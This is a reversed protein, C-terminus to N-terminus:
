RSGHQGWVLSAVTDELKLFSHTRLDEQGHQSTPQGCHEPRRRPEQHMVRPWARRSRDSCCHHHQCAVSKPPLSALLARDPPLLLPVGGRHGLGMPVARVLFPATVEPSARLLAPPPGVPVSPHNPHPPHEPQPPWQSKVHVPPDAPCGSLTPLLEPSVGSEGLGEGAPAPKGPSRSCAPGAVPPPQQSGGPCPPFGPGKPSTM